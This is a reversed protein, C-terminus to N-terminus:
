LGVIGVLKARAEKDSFANDVQLVMDFAELTNEGGTHIAFPNAILEALPHVDFLINALPGFRAEAVAHTRLAIVLDDPGFQIAGPGTLDSCRPKCITNGSRRAVGFTEIV